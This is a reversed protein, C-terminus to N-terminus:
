RCAPCSPRQPATRWDPCSRRASRRPFPDRLLDLSVPAMSARHSWAIAFLGFATASYLAPLVCAILEILPWTIFSEAPCPWGWITPSIRARLSASYDGMFSVSEAASASLRKATVGAKAASFVFGFFFLACGGVEFIITIGGGVSGAILSRDGGLSMVLSILPCSRSKKVVTTSAPRSWATARRTTSSLASDSCILCSAPM